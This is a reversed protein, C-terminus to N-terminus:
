VNGLSLGAAHIRRLLELGPDPKGRDLHLHGLVGRYAGLYGPPLVTPYVDGDKMPVRLPLELAACLAANLAIVSSIQAPYFEGYTVERRHIRETRRPREFGKSPTTGHGRNIIEIGVGWSNGGNERAHSCRAAVDACQYVEGLQDVIFHVSLPEPKGDKDVHRRMNDFCQEASNEAGTWHNVIWRTEALRMRTLFHMGTASWTRVPALCRYAKGHAVIEQTPEGRQIV